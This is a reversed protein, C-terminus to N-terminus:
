NGGGDNGTLAALREEEEASLAPVSQPTRRRAFLASALGAGLVLAPSLWL